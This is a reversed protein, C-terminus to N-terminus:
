RRDKDRKRQGKDESAFLDGKHQSSPRLTRLWYWDKQHPCWWLMGKINKLFIKGLSVHSALIWFSVYM